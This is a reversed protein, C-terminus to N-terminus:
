APKRASVQISVIARGIDAAEAPALQADKLISAVLPDQTPLDEAFVSQNQVAV